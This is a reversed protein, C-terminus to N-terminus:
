RQEEDGGHQQQQVAAAAIDLERADPNRSCFELIPDLRPLVNL